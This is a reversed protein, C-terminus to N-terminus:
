RRALKEGRTAVRRSSTQSRIAEVTEVKLWLVIGSLIGCFVETVFQVVDRVFYEAAYRTVANQELWKTRSTNNKLAFLADRSMIGSLKTFPFPFARIM